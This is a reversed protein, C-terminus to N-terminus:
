HHLTRWIAFASWGFFLLPLVGLCWHDIRFAREEKGGVELQLCYASILLTAFIFGLAVMHILDALTMSGSDPVSGSAIFASAAVAFLGGVGMGFRADLDSPKVMFSVFAVATALFVTSLLKVAAGWGTRDLDWAMIFRSYESRADSPLSTDGYNTRYTKQTVATDFKSATWGALDIEEGLQSNTKDPVFVLDLATFSSDEIRVSTRHWDFPYAKLEWTEAITASIRASAYNLEGIKKEVVSSKNDITGNIIEFSELPKYDALKGEAKWRFWIFFDLAYKNERFNLDQIKNVYTGVTVQAPQAMAALPAIGLALLLYALARRARWFIM